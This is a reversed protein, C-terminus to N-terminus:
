GGEGGVWSLWQSVKKDRYIQKNQVTRIFPLRYYKTKPLQRRESQTMNEPDMWVTAHSLVENRETASYSKM